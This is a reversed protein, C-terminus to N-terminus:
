RPKRPKPGKAGERRKSERTKAREARERAPELRRAEYASGLCFTTDGEHDVGTGLTSDKAGDDKLNRGVSYLVIGGGGEVALMKMQEGSFPDMPVADIHKPALESLDRPYRGKEARYAVTALALYALRQRAEAELLASRSAMLSPVAIAALIGGWEEEAGPELEETEDVMKGYPKSMQMRIKRMREKYTAIEQRLFFVRWVAAEWGDSGSGPGSGQMSSLLM